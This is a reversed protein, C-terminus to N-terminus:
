AVNLTLVTVGATGDPNAHLIQLGSGPVMKLRALIRSKFARIDESCERSFSAPLAGKEVRRLFEYRTLTLPLTIPPEDKKLYVSIRPIRSGKAGVELDIYPHEGNSTGKTPIRRMEIESSKGAAYDLATTVFVQNSEDLLLGTWVRNLATILPTLRKPHPAKGEAVPPLLEELYDKAYHFNTLGWPNYRSEMALPTRFFLRRRQAVLQNHFPGEDDNSETPGHNLYEKRIGEFTPNIPFLADDTFIKDYDARFDDDDPGFLILNDAQNITELGVRFSEMPGFIRERWDLPLNLGLINAFFNSIQPRGESIIRRLLDVNMIGSKDSVGLLANALMALINRIPLHWDNSDCLKALDLLRKRIIPDKLALYNTRLPSLSGFIDNDGGHEAELSAWAPNDLVADLCLAFIVDSKLSSLHFIRLPTGEPPEVGKQLCRELIQFAEAIHPVHSYDRFAKLLQGDNAAIAFFSTVSDKPQRGLILESWIGIADSEETAAAPSTSGFKRWASLDRNIHAQYKAGGDTTGENIWYNGKGKLKGPEGAMGAHIKHIECTKGVGAEGTLLINTWKGNKVDLLDLIEKEMPHVFKIPPIGLNAIGREMREHYLAKESGSEHAAYWGLLEIWKEGYTPM